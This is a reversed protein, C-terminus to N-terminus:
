VKTAKIAIVGDGYLFRSFKNNYNYYFPSLFRRINKYKPYRSLREIKQFGESKLWEMIEKEDIELYTPARIRDKITLILDKDFLEKIASWNIQNHYEDNQEKMSISIFYIM